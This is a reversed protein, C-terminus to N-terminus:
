KTAAKYRRALEQVDIPDIVTKYNVHAADLGARLDVMNIVTGFGPHKGAKRKAWVIARGITVGSPNTAVIDAPVDVGWLSNPKVFGALGKVPSGPKQWYKLLVSVPLRIPGNRLPDHFDVTPIPTDGPHPTHGYPPVDERWDHAFSSHDAQFTSGPARYPAPIQDYDGLIIGGGATLKPKLVAPSWRQFDNTGYDIDVNHMKGVRIVDSIFLGGSPTDVGKVCSVHSDHRVQDATLQVANRTGMAIAMAASAAACNRGQCASGTLQIAHFDTM